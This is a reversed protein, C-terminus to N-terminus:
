LFGLGVTLKSVHAYEASVVGPYVRMNTFSLSQDFVPNSV